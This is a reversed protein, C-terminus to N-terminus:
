EPDIVLMVSHSDEFLSRYRAESEALAAATRRRETIDEVAALIGIPQGDAGRLASASLAIPIETGDKRLRELEIGTLVEGSLVRDRLVAFDGRSGPPVLPLPRGLVEDETWGFVRTASENWSLVRGETDVSYLAVPSCAVIAREFEEARRREAEARRSETVDRLLVLLRAGGDGAVRRATVEVDLLRGDATLHRTEFRVEG